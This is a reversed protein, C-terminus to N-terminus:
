GRRGAEVGAPREAVWCALQLEGRWAPSRSGGALQGVERRPWVGGPQDRAQVHGRLPKCKSANAGTDDRARSGEGGEKRTEVSEHCVRGGHQRNREAQGESHSADGVKREGVHVDAERRRAAGPAAPLHRSRAGVHEPDAVPLVVGVPRAHCLHDGARGEHERRDAEEGDRQLQGASREEQESGRHRRRVDVLERVVHRELRLQRHPQPVRLVVGRAPENLQHQEGDPPVEGRQRQCSSGHHGPGACRRDFCSPRVRLPTRPTNSYVTNCASRPICVVRVYRM